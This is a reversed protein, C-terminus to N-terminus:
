DAGPLEYELVGLTDTVVTVKGVPRGGPAPVPLLGTQGPLVYAALPTVVEDELGPSQYRVESVKVHTNGSNGFRVYLKDGMSEFDVMDFTAHPASEPAVFVPVGIQLRMSIGSSSATEPQPPELETIFVRYTKEMAPDAPELMGVRVLQDEGPKLTFLPPVALLAETPAYVEPEGDSQSWAVVEVQYSKQRGEQNSVRIVDKDHNAGLDLRVPSVSISAYANSSANLLLFLLAAVIAAKGLYRETM